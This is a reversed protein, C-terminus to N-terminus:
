LRPDMKYPSKGGNKPDSEPLGEGDELKFFRERGNTLPNLPTDPLQFNNKMFTSKKVWPAPRKKKNTPSYARDVFIRSQSTSNFENSGLKTM